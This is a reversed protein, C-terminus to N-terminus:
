LGYQQVLASTSQHKIYVNSYRCYPTDIQCNLIKCDMNSMGVIQCILAVKSIVLTMLSFDRPPLNRHFLFQSKPQIQAQEAVKSARKKMNVNAFINKKFCQLRHFCKQCLICNFLFIKKRLFDFFFNPQSVNEITDQEM